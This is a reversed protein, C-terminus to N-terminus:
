ADHAEPQAALHRTLKAGADALDKETTINYRDFVHRTMHRSSAVALNEPIRARIMNRVARRRLNHYPQEGM